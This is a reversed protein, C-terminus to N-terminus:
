VLWWWELDHKLALPDVNGVIGHEVHRILIALRDDPVALTPAALHCALLTIEVDAAEQRALKVSSNSVCDSRFAVKKARGNLSFACRSDVSPAAAKATHILAAIEARANPTRSIAIDLCRRGADMQAPLPCFEEEDTM